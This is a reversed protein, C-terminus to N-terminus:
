TLLKFQSNINFFLYINLEFYYNKFYQVISIINQINFM